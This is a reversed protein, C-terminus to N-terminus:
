RTSKRTKKRGATAKKSASKRTTKRGAAAKKAAAKKATSKRHTSTSGKSRSRSGSEEAMERSILKNFNSQAGGATQEQFLLALERGDFKNFWDDWGIHQLTEEGGYGPFDLRLVGIDGEDGTGEVCAPQGGRVEAWRRIEEHDTSVHSEAKSAM